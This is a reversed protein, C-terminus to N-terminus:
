VTEEYSLQQRGDRLIISLQKSSDVVKHILQYASSRSINFEYHIAWAAERMLVRGRQKVYDLLWESRKTGEDRRKFQYNKVLIGDQEIEKPIACFGYITKKRLLPRIRHFAQYQEYEEHAWRYAELEIDKFHYRGGHRENEVYDKSLPEYACFLSFDEILDDHNTNYTGIIFLIDRDELSNKGRLNGFTLVKVDLDESIFQRRDCRKPIVLGIKIGVGGNYQTELLWAIWQQIRQRTTTDKVISGTTPYWADSRTGRCRYVMSGRDEVKYEFGDDRFDIFMNEQVLYRTRLVEFIKGNIIADIIKLQPEDDIEFKRKAVYDFLPFLAPTAFRNKFGYIRAYKHYTDIEDPSTTVHLFTENRIGKVIEDVNMKLYNRHAKRMKKM